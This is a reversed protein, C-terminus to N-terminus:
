KPAGLAATVEDETFGYHMASERLQACLNNLSKIYQDVRGAYSDAGDVLRSNWAQAIEKNVEDASDALEVRLTRIAHSYKTDLAEVQDSILKGAQLINDKSVEFKQGSAQTGGVIAGIAREAAFLDHVARGVVGGVGAVAGLLGGESANAEVV